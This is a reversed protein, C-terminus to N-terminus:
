FNTIFLQKLVKRNNSDLFELHVTDGPAIDINGLFILGRTM